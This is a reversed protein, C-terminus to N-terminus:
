KPNYFAQLSNAFDQPYTTSTEQSSFFPNMLVVRLLCLSNADISCHWNNTFEELLAPYSDFSLTTKSLFYGAEPMKEFLFESRQNISSLPEQDGAICFCFINADGAIIRCEPIQEALTRQLAQATSITRTLIRGYGDSHFGICRSSLWVAAAGTAPRSGELTRQWQPTEAEGKSSIYPAGFISARYDTESAALLTGCAYPVYGLKHPDLTITNARRVASIAAQGQESLCDARNTEGRLLSCFFGGYAADIHHWIHIGKDKQWDDLTNQVQDVPDFTGMETTGLVSIVAAVPRNQQEAKKLLQQLHKISLRGENDLDISWLAKEGLGMLSIGKQWSYHKNNPVLVVPGNFDNDFVKKYTKLAEWPTNAVFSYERLIDEKINYQELYKNYSDWGMHAAQFVSLNEKQTDNLWAGLSLWHDVRYRARWLGEFNALTGGSTFHGRGEKASFGVMTLLDAISETELKRGVRSSEQCINNPNQLLATIHGLLAPMSVESLMHGIYRPSYTPLENELLRILDNLHHEVKKQQQQFAPLKQNIESIAVGDTNYKELRWRFWHELTEGFMNKLWARNESQPGLFFSKVAVEEPPCTTDIGSLKQVHSSVAM